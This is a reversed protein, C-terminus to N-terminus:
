KQIVCNTKNNSNEKRKQSENGSTQARKTPTNMKKEEKGELIQM